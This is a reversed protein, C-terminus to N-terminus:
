RETLQKVPHITGSGEGLNRSRVGGSDRPAPFDVFRGREVKGIFIQRREKGDSETIISGNVGERAAPRSLAQRIKEPNSSGARAIAEVILLYAEAGMVQAAQPRGESDLMCSDRLSTGIGPRITGQRFYTTFILKEVSQGGLEILDPTQVADGAMIPIGPCATRAQRAILACEVGYVPAYIIDPKSAKIKDIQASFDRNGTMFRAEASISGGARRFEDRFCAALALSYEQSMDYVIAAKGANMDHFALGAAAKAQDRDFPVAPVLCGRGPASAPNAVAPTVIPIGRSEAHYSGRLACGTALDGIIVSAGEKETLRFIANATESPDSKTDAIKLVVPRGLVQPSLENAKRIGQWASQGVASLNGTIPLCVGMRVPEATSALSAFTWSITLATLLAKM